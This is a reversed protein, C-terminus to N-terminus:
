RVFPFALTQRITAGTLLMVIRDVGLGLGGTPPMGYELAELFREDVDMAEPDGLSAKLSQATLRRRQDMPDSLETYATGLEMGFAVLDWREALGPTCRHQRALPSTEIPFDTYFTPATTKPEVMQEYLKEVIVGAADSPSTAVRYARAIERLVDPDLTPSVPVGIADSVAECVTVVRWPETLDVREGDPSVLASSGTTAIAMRTILEEALRRMDTYDAFARYAEMATFEPNHTSDVGENRFNRGIEFVRPFGAVILKKLALEPAIRLSLERDYANIHTRFPRANAGGHTNQLIPTEVELYGSDLLGDRLARVARSRARVLEAAYPDTALDIHRHRVRTEADRLGTHTGPPERLSKAALQWTRVAISPEGTRSREARGTVAVIDGRDLHVFRRFGDTGDETAILQIRRHDEVLDLFAVGGHRRRAVIRGAVAFDGEPAPDTAARWAQVTEEISHTRPVSAPYLEVGEDRLREAREQRVRTASRVRHVPQEPEVAEVAAVLSPFSDPRRPASRHRGRFLVSLFGEAGAAALAVRGFSVGRDWLFLRPRWVPEYKENARRLSDLQWRKSMLLLVSRKMRLVPGAGMRAGRVLVDRFVAFNLSIRVIGWSAAESVLSTVVFETTGNVADPHRRMVDLSLGDRNWPVFVLIAKTAGQRDHATAIVSSCDSPDAVRSLTMSFGREEADTRWGEALEVIARLEDATCDSQRRLRVTYGARRVRRRAAALHPAHLLARASARDTHVIAEEGLVTGRMGHRSYLAAGRETSALVAPIWGYSRVVGLWAEVANAWAQERGLPDGSALAVGGFLRYSVAAGRDPSFVVSKDRRTAFYALSDETRSEALVRRLQLEDTASLLRQERATRLLLIVAILLAAASISSILVEVGPDLRSTTDDLLWVGPELGIAANAASWWGDSKSTLRGPFAQSLVGGTIVAIVVGGGFMAASRAYSAPELRASFEKRTLLLLVTFAAAIAAAVTDSVVVDEAATSLTGAASGVLLDWIPLTVTPLEFVVFFVLAWRKRRKAASGILFFLVADFLFPQPTLGFFAFYSAAWYVGDPLIVHPIAVLLLTCAVLQLVRGTWLPVTAQWTRARERGPRTGQPQTAARREHVSSPRKTRVSEDNVTTASM